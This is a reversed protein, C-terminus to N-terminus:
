PIPRAVLGAENGIEGPPIIEYFGSLRLRVVVPAGSQNQLYWGHVGDIPAVLMGHSEAGTGQHYEVVLPEARGPGEPSEGHFDFYFEEPDSLGSVTWSYVLTDGAKMRVKYELDSGRRGTDPSRLPIDIADSRFPTAYFAVASTTGAAPGALRTLGTLAGFGTPDVGYEAPLVFLGVAVGAAAFAGATIAGIRGPTLPSESM